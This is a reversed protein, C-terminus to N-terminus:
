EGEILKSVEDLIKKFTDKKTVKAKPHKKIVNKLGDYIGKDDNKLILKNDYELLAERAASDTIIIYKNLTKAEVLVMGYGEYYSALLFYDAAKIYPYPNERKGLLVFTEEVGLEKIKNQLEEKLPGDGVIYIRHMFGDDLLKKHVEILRGVAKQEVLRSVQVFSIMDDKIEPAEGDMAKQLVLDCDLYNYIVRKMVKNGKFYRQFKNLNDQSVFILEDYKLYAEKNLEQKAKAKEGSGFVDEIDNHVWAIKRANGPCSFIWTIPGELFAIEVDYKGKIYKKYLM